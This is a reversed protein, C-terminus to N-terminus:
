AVTSKWFWNGAVRFILPGNYGGQDCEMEWTRVTWTVAREVNGEASRTFSESVSIVGLVAPLPWSCPPARPSPGVLLLRVCTRSQLSASRVYTNQKVASLVETM